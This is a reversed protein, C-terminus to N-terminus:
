EAAKVTLEPAYVLYAQLPRHTFPDFPEWGPKPSNLVIVQARPWSWVLSMQPVNWTNRQRHAVVSTDAASILGTQTRAIEKMKSRYDCWSDLRTGMAIGLALIAAACCVFGGRPMAVARWQLAGGVLLMPFLLTIFLTRYAYIMDPWPLLVGLLWCAAALGAVGALGRLVVTWGRMWALAFIAFAAVGIMPLVEQWPLLLHRKFGDRNAQDVPYFIGWLSVIGALLALGVVIWALVRQGREPSTFARWAALAAFFPAALVMSEYSFTLIGLCGLLVAADTPTWRERRALFFLVPWSLAAMVHGEHTLHGDLPYHMMLASWIPLAMFHKQGGPLARWAAAMGVWYILLLGLGYCAILLPMTTVGSRVAILLVWQQAADALFRSPTPLAFRGRELVDCFFNVGDCSLHRQLFFAVALPLTAVLALALWRWEPASSRKGDATKM